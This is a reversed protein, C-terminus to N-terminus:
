LLVLNGLTVRTPKTKVRILLEVYATDKSPELLRETTVSIRTILNDDELLCYFPTEGSMPGDGSPLEGITPIKLGDFLTKLRNDIDGSQTIIAGPPEPRLITINSNATYIEEFKKSIKKENILHM